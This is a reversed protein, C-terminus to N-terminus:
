RPFADIITRLRAEIAPLFERGTFVYPQRNRIADEVLRAVEAPQMGAELRAKFDARQAPTPELSAGQLDAPRNRDATDINTNVMGPCLVSVGIRSGALALEHHLTESIAVVAFKSAHYAGLGPATIMGAISATNVIHGEEGSQTMTPLFARIGHIVGWLNVDLVWKWDNTTLAEIPGGGGVGANNCLVHVAGFTDFAKAALADVSEGSGVDTVVPLVSTGSERLQAAVEALRPEEVDALVVNMGLAAFREALGRGIGSAAGTVVATRGEFTDM